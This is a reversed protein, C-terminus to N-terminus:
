ESKSKSGYSIVVKSGDSIQSLPAVASGGSSSGGGGTLDDSRSSDLQSLNDDDFSSNFSENLKLSSGELVTTKSNSKRLYTVKRSTQTLKSTIIHMEQWVMDLASEDKNEEILYKLANRIFLMCYLGDKQLIITSLNEKLVSLIKCLLSEIETKIFNDLSDKQMKEISNQNIFGAFMQNMFKM